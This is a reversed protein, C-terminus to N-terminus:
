TPVTAQLRYHSRLIQTRAGAHALSLPTMRGAASRAGFRVEGFRGSTKARAKLEAYAKSCEISRSFSSLRCAPIRRREWAEGGSAREGDRALRAAMAAAPDPRARCSELDWGSEPGWRVPRAASRRDAAVVWAFATRQVVTRRRSNIYKNCLRRM